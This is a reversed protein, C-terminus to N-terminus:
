NPKAQSAAELNNAEDRLGAGACRASIDIAGGGSSSLPPAPTPRQQTPPARHTSSPRASPCNTESSMVEVPKAEESSARRPAYRGYVCARVGGRVLNIQKVAAAAASSSHEKSSAAM